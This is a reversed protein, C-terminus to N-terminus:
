AQPSQQRPPFRLLRLQRRLRQRHIHTLVLRRGYIEDKCYEATDLIKQIGAEDEVSLLKAVDELNLGKLKRAKNLIDNLQSETPANDQLMGYLKDRDIFNQNRM